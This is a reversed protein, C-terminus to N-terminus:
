GQQNLGATISRVASRPTFRVGVAGFWNLFGHIALVRGRMMKRYADAAVEPATAVGPRQFLRTNANGARGAFETHTAGPCYCTVTVGTGKLEHALAESLSVVFAKTAFYTAMFPGPQYGATSAINLIRGFGRERM